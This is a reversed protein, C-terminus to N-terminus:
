QILNYTVINTGMKLAQLRIDEPNNHVHNDEWGDGLDCEYTYLLILKKNHFVGFAQPPKNDHEHIKPLGNKFTYYSNFIPHNASLEIMQKDPFIKKLEKRFSKDLGYNDDVHLFAGNLLHERLILREEKSLKINGHGTIYFYNNKYFIDDGIKVIKENLDVEISTNNKIFNLLNPLSSPNAYWDGGGNYHIRSITFLGPSNKDPLSFIKSIILIIFIIKKM